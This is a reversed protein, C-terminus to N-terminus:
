ISLYSRAARARVLAEPLSAGTATVHGMKRDPRTEVKGYIHVATCPVALAQELGTLDAPGSREGLLNVMVAAPVVLDASGLPLGAVARVHQEFQDTACAELTYHGSNHVRPAVENVLVAGAQTLFMEVAFVGCGELLRVTSLALTRAAETAEETVPAPALVAQCISREHLTEVVPFTVLEGAAGRAVQVALEKVFPVFQEAYVAQGSLKAWAAALEGVSRVVVNGRGDYGHSRVKLVLPYGFSAAAQTLEGLNAVARFPATALGHAALLQKQVLKDKVAKLTAASPNVRAGTEALAQLLDPDALEIEFTVYDSARGLEELATRDTYAATIARDVVQAAPCGPTPDLITVTFGLRKAAFALLRGLQGGGVIGLRQKM